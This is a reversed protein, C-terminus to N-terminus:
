GLIPFAEAGRTIGIVGLPLKRFLLGEAETMWKYFASIDEVLRCPTSQVNHALSILSAIIL